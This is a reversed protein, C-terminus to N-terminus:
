DGPFADLCRAIFDWSLATLQLQYMASEVLLAYALFQDGLGKAFVVQPQLQAIVDRICEPEEACFQLVRQLYFAFADKPIHSHCIVGALQSAFIQPTEDGLTLEYLLATRLEAM